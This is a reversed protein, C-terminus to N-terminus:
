NKFCRVYFGNEKGIFDINVNADDCHLVYGWATYSNNETSSWWFSRSGIYYFPYQLTTSGGPLGTFGSENTADTNPTQWLSTGTSKMKGGAVSIGGLCDTLLTLDNYSSVHWGAPALNKRLSINSASNADYIGAVAFWNYLKGYIAGNAPDNNYYCWAGTTLNKWQNFDTVQPIPTGDTYKSANLNQKMFTLGCSTVTQYINGNIDTVNPGSNNTSNSNSSSSSNTSCSLIFSSALITLILKKM